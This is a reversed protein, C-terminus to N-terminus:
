SRVERSSALAARVAAAMAICNENSVRALDTGGHAAIADYVPDYAADSPVLGSAVDRVFHRAKIAATQAAHGSVGPAGSPDSIEAKQSKSQM